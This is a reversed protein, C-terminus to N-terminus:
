DGVLAAVELLDRYAAAGPPDGRQAIRFAIVEDALGDYAHLRAACENATGSVSVADILDDGIRDMAERTRGAPVLEAAMDAVEAFGQQRLQSDYYPHPVPHFLGCISSRIAARALDRDENVSM